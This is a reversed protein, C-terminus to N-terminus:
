RTHKLEERLARLLPWIQDRLLLLLAENTVPSQLGKKEAPSADPPLIPELEGTAKRYRARAALKADVKALEGCDNATLTSADMHFKDLAAKFRDYSFM